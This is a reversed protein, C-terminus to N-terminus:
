EAGAAGVADATRFYTYSLTIARVDDLHRDEDLAPDVFYIVPAEMEEGPALTQETFCFCELKEFYPGAKHPTVNFSAVITVPERAVNRVRFYAMGTEGLRVSQDHDLAVFELPAGAATNADFRVTMVRESIEGPAAATRGVTGGYGTVRCFTDYLPKAAFAAGLMTAAVASLIIPTRTLNNM